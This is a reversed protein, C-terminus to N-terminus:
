IFIQPQRESDRRKWFREEGKWGRQCGQIRTEPENVRLKSIELQVGAEINKEFEPTDMHSLDPLCAHAEGLTVKLGTCEWSGVAKM